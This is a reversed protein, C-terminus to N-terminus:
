KINFKNKFFIVPGLIVSDYYKSRDLAVGSRGHEVALANEEDYYTTADMLLEVNENQPSNKINDLQWLRYLRSTNGM